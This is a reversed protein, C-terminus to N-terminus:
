KMKLKSAVMNLNRYKYRGMYSSFKTEMKFLLNVRTALVPELTMPSILIAIAFLKSSKGNKAISNIWDQHITVCSTIWLLSIHNGKKHPPIKLSLHLLFHRPYIFFFLLTSANCENESFLCRANNLSVAQGHQLYSLKLRFISYIANKCPM